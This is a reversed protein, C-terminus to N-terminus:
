LAAFAMRALLGTDLPPPAEPQVDAPKAQEQHSRFADVVQTTVTLYREFMADDIVPYGVHILTDKAPGMWRAHHLASASEPRPQEHYSLDNVSGLVAVPDNYDCGEKGPHVIRGKKYYDGYKKDRIGLPPEIIVIEKQHDETAFPGTVVELAFMRSRFLPVSGQAPKGYRPVGEFKACQTETVICDTLRFLESGIRVPASIRAVGFAPAEKSTALTHWAAVSVDYLPDASLAEIAPERPKAAEFNRLISSM